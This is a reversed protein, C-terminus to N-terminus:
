GYEWWIEHDKICIECYFRDEIPESVNEESYCIRCKNM